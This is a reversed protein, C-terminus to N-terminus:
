ILLIAKGTVMRHAVEFGLQEYVRIAPYNDIFVNLVITPFHQRLLTDALAATIMSAYGQRRAEPATLIHGLVAVQYAPALAHTGGAALMRAGDSAGFFLSDPFLEASFVVETQADYLQQLGSLDTANLRRVPQPTQQVPMKLSAETVSMRWIGRWIPDTRYRQQLAPIHMEQVQVLPHAPLDDIGQLLAMVGDISGFPSIVDGIIPHRLILCSAQVVDCQYALVFQSYARLPPELDALAFCNWVRDQLLFAKIEEDRGDQVIQWDASSKFM